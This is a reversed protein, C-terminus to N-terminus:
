ATPARVQTLKTAAYLIYRDNSIQLIILPWATSCASLQCNAAWLRVVLKFAEDSGYISRLRVM